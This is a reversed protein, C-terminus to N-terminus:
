NTNDKSNKVLIPNSWHALQYSFYGAGLQNLHDIDHWFLAHHELVPLPHVAANFYPISESKLLSDIPQAAIGVFSRLSFYPSTFCLLKVNKRKCEAIFDKLYGLNQYHFRPQIAFNGIPREIFTTSDNPFPALPQYGNGYVIGHKSQILNKITSITRGNYRYFNFLYKVREFRSIDNIEKTIYPNKRYYYRLNGIDELDDSSVYESLDVHLLISSPMKNEQALVHLLGTQFVQGMGAHCLSYTPLAFSDPNVQYRARSNGMLLVAPMTHLSLFRNIEGGTQGTQVQQYITDFVKSLLFDAGFLLSILLSIFLLFRQM